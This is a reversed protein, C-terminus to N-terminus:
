IYGTTNVVKKRLAYNFMIVDTIVAIGKEEHENESRLKKSIM